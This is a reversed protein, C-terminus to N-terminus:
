AFKQSKQLKLAKRLQSKKMKQHRILIKTIQDKFYLISNLNLQKQLQNKKLMKKEKLKQLQAFISTFSEILGTKLTNKMQLQNRQDRQLQPKRPPQM